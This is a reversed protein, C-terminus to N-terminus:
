LGNARLSQSYTAELDLTLTPGGLLALPVSPLPQGVVLPWTWCEVRPRNSTGAPRYSTAYMATAAPFAVAPQNLLRVLEDHLNSRRTTVLDVVVVGMGAQLYSVIKCLFQTRRDPHDKNGPSVLEIAGVYRPGGASRVVFM